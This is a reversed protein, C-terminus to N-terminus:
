RNVDLFELIAPAVADAPNGIRGLISGHNRDPARVLTVPVRLDALAQGMDQAQKQANGLDRDAWLLLFPPTKATLHEYPSADRRVAPDTTFIRPFMGKRIRYVGSIGIVGRIASPTLDYPALFAENTAILAALHAGASHGGVYIQKPDGGYDHINLVTWAFAAAVDQAFRPYAVKPFLRYNVNVMGIGHRTFFAGLRATGTKDGLVWAGGHVFFVVPFNKVGKPSYVDLVHKQPDYDPGVYYPVDSALGLNHVAPQVAAPDARKACGPCGAIVLAFIAFFVFRSVRLPRNFSM